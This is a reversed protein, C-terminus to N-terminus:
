MGSDPHVLLLGFALVVVVRRSRDGSRSPGGVGRLVLQVVALSQGLGRPFELAAVGMRATSKLRGSMGSDTGADTTM